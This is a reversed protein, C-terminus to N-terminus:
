GDGAIHLDVASVIAAAVFALQDHSDVARCKGARAGDNVDLTNLDIGVDSNRGVRIESDLTLNLNAGTPITVNADIQIRKIDIFTGKGSLTSGNGTMILSGSNGSGDYTGNIVVNGGVTLDKGDDILTGGADITLSAASQDGKLNITHASVIIVTDGAVPKKNCSWTAGKDWNGSQVSTCVAAAAEGAFAALALIAWLFRSLKKLEVM